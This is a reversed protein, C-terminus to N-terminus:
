RHLAASPHAQIDITERVVVACILLLLGELVALHQYRLHCSPLEFGCSSSITVHNENTACIERSAMSAHKIFEKYVDEFMDLM